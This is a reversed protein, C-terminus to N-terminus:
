RTSPELLPIDPSVIAVFGALTQALAAHSAEIDFEASEPEHVAAQFRGSRLRSDHDALTALEPCHAPHLVFYLNMNFYVGLLYSAISDAHTQADAKGAGTRDEALKQRLTEVRAYFSRAQNLIARRVRPRTALVHQWAGVVPLTTM